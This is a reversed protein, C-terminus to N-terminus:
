HSLIIKLKGTALVMKLTLSDITSIVLSSLTVSFNTLPQPIQRFDFQTSPLIANRFNLRNQCTATINPFTDGPSGFTFTKLFIKDIQVVAMVFAESTQDSITITCSLSTGKAVDIYIDVPKDKFYHSVPEILEQKFTQNLQSSPKM